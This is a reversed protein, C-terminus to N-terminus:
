QEDAASFLYGLLQVSCFLTKIKFISLIHNWQYISRSMLKVQLFWRLGSELRFLPDVGFAFGDVGAMQAVPRLQEVQSALNAKIAVGQVEKDGAYPDDRDQM